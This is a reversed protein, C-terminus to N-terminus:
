KVNLILLKWIPSDTKIYYDNFEFNKDPNMYTTNRFEREICRTM